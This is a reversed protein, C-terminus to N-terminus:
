GEMGGSDTFPYYDLCQKLSLTTLVTIQHVTEIILQLGAV